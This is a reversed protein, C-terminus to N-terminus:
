HSSDWASKLRLIKEVVFFVLLLGCLWWAGLAPAFLLFAPQRQRPTVYHGTHARRSEWEIGNVIRNSAEDPYPLGVKRLYLRYTFSAVVSAVMLVAFSVATVAAINRRM